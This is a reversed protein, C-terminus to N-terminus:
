GWVLDCTRRVADRMAGLQRKRELGLVDRLRGHGQFRRGDPTPTRESKPATFRMEARNKIRRIIRRKLDEGGYEEPWEAEKWPGAKPWTWYTIMNARPHIIGTCLVRGAELVEDPLLAPGDPTFLTPDPTMPNVIVGRGLFFSSGVETHYSLPGFLEHYSSTRMWSYHFGREGTREQPGIRGDALLVIDMGAWPHVLFHFPLGPPFLPLHKYWSHASAVFEVFAEIQDVTPRDKAEFLGAYEGLSLRKTVPKSLATMAHKASQMQNAM